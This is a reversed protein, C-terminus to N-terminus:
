KGLGLLDLTGALWELHRVLSRTMSHGPWPGSPGHRGAEALAPAMDWPEQCGRDGLWDLASGRHRRSLAPRFTRCQGSGNRTAPAVLAEREKASFREDHTPLHPQAELIAEGLEESAGRRPRPNNLEHALGASLKGLAALKERQRHARQTYRMRRALGSIFIDALDPSRPPCAGSLRRTSRWFAARRGARGQPDLDEGDAVRARRHAGRARPDWDPDGCRRRPALDRSGGRARCLSDVVSKEDLLDGTQLSSERGYPM